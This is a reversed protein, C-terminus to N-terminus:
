RRFWGKRKVYCDRMLDFYVAHKNKQLLSLFKHIGSTEILKREAETITVLWFLQISHGLQEKVAIPKSDSQVTPLLYVADKQQSGSMVDKLHNLTATAGISLPQNRQYPVKAAARLIQIATEDVHAAYFVLEACVTKQGNPMEIPHDSMGSTVLTTYDRSQHPGHILVDIPMHPDIDRDYRICPGFKEEFLQKRFAVIKDHDYLVGSRSADEIEESQQDEELEFADDGIEAEVPDDLADERRGDGFIDEWSNVELNGDQLAPTEDNSPDADESPSDEPEITSAQDSVEPEDTSPSLYESWDQAVTDVNPPESVPNGVSLVDDTFTEQAISEPEPTVTPSSVTESLSPTYPKAATVQRSKTSVPLSKRTSAVFRSPSAPPEALELERKLLEDERRILDAERRSLSDQRAAFESLLKKKEVSLDDPAVQEAAISPLENDSEAEHDREESSAEDIPATALATELERELSNIRDKLQDNESQLESQQEAQRAQYEQDQQKLREATEHLETKRAHLDQERQDLSELQSKLEQETLQLQSERADFAQQADQHQVSLSEIQQERQKLQETLQELQTQRSLLEQERADLSDNRSQLNIEFQHLNQEHVQSAQESEQVAQLRNELEAQRQGLDDEQQRLQEAKQALEKAAQSDVDPSRTTSRSTEGSTSASAASRSARFQQLTEEPFLLGPITAAAVWENKGDGIGANPRIAGADVYRQLQAISYPGRKGTKTKIYWQDSM